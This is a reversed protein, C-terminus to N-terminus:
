EGKEAGKAFPYYNSLEEKCRPCETPSYRALISKELDILKEIVMGLDQNKVAPLIAKFAQRVELSMRGEYFEDFFDMSRDIM